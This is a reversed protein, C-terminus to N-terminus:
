KSGVFMTLSELKETQNKRKHGVIRRLGVLNVKVDENRPIDEVRM